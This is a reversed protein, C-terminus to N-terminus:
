PTRNNESESNEVTRKVENWEAVELASSNGKVGANM